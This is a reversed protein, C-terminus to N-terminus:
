CPLHVRYFALAADRSERSVRFLKSLTQYGEVVAGYREDERTQPRTDGRLRLLEDMIMRSHLHLKIIRQRQM